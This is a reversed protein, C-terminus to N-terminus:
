IDLFNTVEIQCQKEHHFIRLFLYKRMALSGVVEYILNKESTYKKLGLVLVIKKLFM